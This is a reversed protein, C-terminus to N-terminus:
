TRDDIETLLAPLEGLAPDVDLALFELAEADGAVPVIGIERHIEVGLPHDGLFELLEQHVARQVAPGLRHHPRRDLFVASASASTSYWSWWLWVIQTFNGTTRSIGPLAPFRCINVM